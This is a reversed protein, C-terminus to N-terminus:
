ALNFQKFYVQKQLSFQITQFLDTKVNLGTYVFTINYQIIQFKEFWTLHGSFPQYETFFVVFLSVVMAILINELSM